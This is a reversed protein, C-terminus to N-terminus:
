RLPIDINKAAVDDGGIVNVKPQAYRFTQVSVGEDVLFAIYGVVKEGSKISKSFDYPALDAAEMEEDITGTADYENGDADLLKVALRSPYGGTYEGANESTLQILVVTEGTLTKESPFNEVMKGVTLKYDLPTTASKNVTTEQETAAPATTEEDTVLEDEPIAPELTEQTTTSSSSGLVLYAAVGSGILLVVLVVLVIILKAHSKKPPKAQMPTNGVPMGPQTGAMDPQQSPQPEDPAFPDAQMAPNVPQPEQAAASFANPIDEAPSPQPPEDVQPTPTLGNPDQSLTPNAAVPDHEMAPPPTAPNPQVVQPEPTPNQPMQVPNAAPQSQPQQPQVPPDGGAPQGQNPTIIQPNNEDPM